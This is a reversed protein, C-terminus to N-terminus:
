FINCLLLVSIMGLLLGVWQTKTLKEKFLILAALTSLAVNGGNIIPFFIASDLVGSLYVNFINALAVCVSCILVIVLVRGKMGTFRLGPNKDQKGSIFYIVASVAASVVFALILFEYLEGKYQSSQHMKQMVGILGTCAFCAMCFALWKASAKRDNSNKEVSLLLSLVMLAIGVYQWFSIPEGWFIGGSLSPIVMSACIIVTSYSMPGISLAQLALIVSGATLIGFVIGLLVTYASVAKFGGAFVLIIVASLLSVIFNFVFFDANIKVYKKSYQNRLIGYLVSVVLSIFLLLYPNFHEM